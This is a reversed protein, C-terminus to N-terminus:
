GLRAFQRRVQRSPQMKWFTEVEGSAKEANEAAWLSVKGDAGPEGIKVWGESVCFEVVHEQEDGDLKVGVYSGCNTYFKSSRMISLRDPLGNPEGTETKGCQRAKITTIGPDVLGDRDREIACAAAALGAAGGGLLVRMEQGLTDTKGM